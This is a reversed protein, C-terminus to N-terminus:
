GLKVNDILRTDGFKVAVLARASVSVLGLEEFTDVDAISAYDPLSSVIKVQGNAEDLILFFSLIWLFRCIKRTM